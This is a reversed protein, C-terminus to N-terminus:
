LRAEIATRARWLMREVTRLPEDIRTAIASVPSGRLVQDLLVDIHAGWRAESWRPGHPPTWIAVALTALDLYRDETADIPVSPGEARRRRPPIEEVAEQEWAAGCRACRMIWDEATLGARGALEPLRLRPVRTAGRCAHCKESWQWGSSITLKRAPAASLGEALRFYREIARDATLRM